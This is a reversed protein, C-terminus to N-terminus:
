EAPNVSGVAGRVAAEVIGEVQSDQSEFTVSTGNPSSAEFGQITQNGIRTYSLQEGTELEYRVSVCGCVMLLLCALVARVVVLFDLQM